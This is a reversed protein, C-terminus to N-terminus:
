NPEHALREETPTLLGPFTIEVVAGAVKLRLWGQKSAESALDMVESPSRDLLRTWVSDLLLRGRLGSLYGLVLSYATVQPTVIPQSRRKVVKGRLYGAQTWSSALRQATAHLTSARFRAPYREALVRAIATADLNQGRPVDLVIDTNDRLLVDRASAAVYSLMPRGVEDTEWFRRLLRYVAKSPDLAYLNTLYKAAKLRTSRTAKGLLNEEIIAQRHRRLDCDAPIGELLLSLESMM